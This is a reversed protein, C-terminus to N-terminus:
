FCISLFDSTPRLSKDQRNVAQMLLLIECEPNQVRQKRKMHNAVPVIVLKDANRFGQHFLSKNVNLWRAQANPCECLENLKRETAHREICCLSFEDQLVFTRFM